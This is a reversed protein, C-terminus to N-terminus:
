GKTGRAKPFYNLRCLRPQQLGGIERTPQAPIHRLPTVGNEEGKPRPPTVLCARANADRIRFHVLQQGNTVIQAYEISWKTCM